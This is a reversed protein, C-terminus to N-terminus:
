VNTAIIMCGMGAVGEPDFLVYGDKRRYVHFGKPILIFDSIQGMNM